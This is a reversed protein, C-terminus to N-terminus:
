ETAENGRRSYQFYQSVIRSFHVDTWVSEAPHNLRSLSSDPSPSPPCIWKQTSWCYDCTACPPIANTYCLHQVESHKILGSPLAAVSECYSVYRSGYQVQTNNTVRCWVPFM